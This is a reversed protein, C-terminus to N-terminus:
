ATSAFCLRCGVLTGQGESEGSWHEQRLRVTPCSQLSKAAAAAAAFSLPSASIRGKEKQLISHSSSQAWPIQSRGLLLPGQEHETSTCVWFRALDCM